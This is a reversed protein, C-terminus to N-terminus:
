KIVQPQLKKAEAIFFEQWEQPPIDQLMRPYDSVEQAKIFQTGLQMPDIPTDFKVIAKKILEALSFENKKCICYLDIYDRAKTRQYITFVKNVAIDLLSDITV